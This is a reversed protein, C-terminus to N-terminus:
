APEMAATAVAAERTKSPSALTALRQALIDLLRQLQERDAATLDGLILEDAGSEETVRAADVIARLDPGFMRHLGSLMVSIGPTTAQAM